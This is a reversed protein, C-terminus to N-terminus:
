RRRCRSSRLRVFHCASRESDRARQSRLGSSRDNKKPPLPPTPLVVHAAAQASASRGRAPPRTSTTEVSGACESPSASPAASQRARRAPDGACADSSATSSSAGRAKARQSRSCAAREAVDELVAGPEIAVVDVRQQIQRNGADVLQDAQDLDRPERAGRVTRGPRRRCRASRGCAAAAPPAPFPRRRRRRARRAAPPADASERAARAPRRPGLRGIPQDRQEGRLRALRRRPQAIAPLRGEVPHRQGLATARRSGLVRM